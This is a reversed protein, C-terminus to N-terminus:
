RIRSNEETEWMDCNDGMVEKLPFTFENLQAIAAPGIDLDAAELNEELQKANRCGLIVSTVGPQAILWCLSLVSM